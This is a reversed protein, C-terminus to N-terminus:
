ISGIIITLPLMMIFILLPFVTTIILRITTWFLLSEFRKSTKENKWVFTLVIMGIVPFIFSLINLLINPIDTNIVEERSKIQVNFCDDINQEQNLDYDTRCIPCSKLNIDKETGCVKCYAM